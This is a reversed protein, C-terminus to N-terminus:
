DLKIPEARASRGLRDVLLPILKEATVTEDRGDLRFVAMGQWLCQGNTQSDLTIEIHVEDALAANQYRRGGIVSNWRNSWLDVRIWIREKLAARGDLQNRSHMNSNVFHHGSGVYLSLRLPAESSVVTQHAVLSRVLVRRLRDSQSSGDSIEVEVILPTPLPACAFATVHGATEKLEQGSSPVVVSILITILLLRKGLLM